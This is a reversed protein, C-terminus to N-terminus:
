KSIEAAKYLTKILEGFKVKERPLFKNESKKMVGLAMASAAYGEFGSEIDSGDNADLKFIDGKSALAEYGLFRIILKAMHQRDLPKELDSAEAATILGHVMAADIYRKNADAKESEGTKTENLAYIDPGIGLCTTLFKVSDMITPVSELDISSGSEFMGQNMFLEAERRGTEGRITIYPSASKATVPEKLAYNLLEGTYSDIYAADLLNKLTYVLIKDSQQPKQPADPGYYGYMKPMIYSLTIGMKEMMIGAAKQRSLINKEPAPFIIDDWSYNLSTIEGKQTVGINISNAMYPIGNVIRVFNFFFPQYPDKFTPDTEQSYGTSQVQDAKDPLYKKIYELAKNKADEWNLAPSDLNQQAEPYNGTNKWFGFSQIKGTSADVTANANGDNSIFNFFYLDLTKPYPTENYAQLAMSDLGFRKIEDEALKQAQKETLPANLKSPIFTKEGALNIEDLTPINKVEVGSPSILTGDSARIVIPPGVYAFRSPLYVLRATDMPIGSNEDYGRVYALEPGIYKVYIEEAQQKSIIKEDIPKDDSWNLNYSIISGDTADVTANIGEEGYYYEVPQIEASKVFRFFYNVPEFLGAAKIGPYYNDEAYTTKTFKDPAMKKIFNEAFVRAEERTYKALYIKRKGYPYAWNENKNFSIVESSDADIAIYASFYPKYFNISWVRRNGPQWGTNLYIEPKFDEPADFLQKAIEIAKERTIKVDKSANSIPASTVAEAATKGAAEPAMGAGYAPLALSAALVIALLSTLARKM